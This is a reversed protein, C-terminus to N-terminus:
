ASRRDQIFARTMEVRAKAWEDDFFEDPMRNGSVGFLRWTFDHLARPQVEPCSIEALLTLQLVFSEKRAAWMSPRAHMATLRETVFATLQTENM